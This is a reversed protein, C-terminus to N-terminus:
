GLRLEISVVSQKPLTVEVSGGRVTIPLAAPKVEDPRDFTNRAAKDAHTLVTARAESATGASLRIRCAVADDLSPNTLTISMRGDKTSASGSLGALTVAGNRSPVKREPTRINLQALRGGMHGRYMDFVHYVPTRAYRDGQALFLSHLCNITQAVNAMAIKGAHRNFVDFSVATHLADRLTLPQSLLHNPATEEGPPYWVGWEDVILKTHHAKDYAGMATWHKDIVEETRLGERIVDYWGAADFQGVKERTNRFDTYFHLSYGDVKARHQPLMNEFFGTTWGIDMDKSHGRPGVAVLYPKPEYVPFQTIFRRYLTAYEGPNMAGGCGWSENGVGWWKVGFPAKDGNAAREAALSVTGVPANCYLVWDHFEKPSGSGVNAALYPEAGTLRCLRMFEHIGFENTETHDFGPPLSAQWYNYTRPRASASGIGDRWHYGDAFCGGPWRLNPVALRKMDEVFKLRIGDVNPIKSNRGVWIGDYIVTGLHEIFHGYIHPSITDGDARPTIEIDADAALAPRVAAAFGALAGAATRLLTRRQMGYTM